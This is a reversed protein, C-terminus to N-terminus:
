RRWVLSKYRSYRGASEINNPILFLYKEQFINFDSIDIAFNTYYSM